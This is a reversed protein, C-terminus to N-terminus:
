KQFAVGQGLEQFASLASAFSVHPAKVFSLKSVRTVKAGQLSSHCSHPVPGPDPGGQVWWADGLWGVKGLNATSLPCIQAGRFDLNLSHNLNKPPHLPSRQEPHLSQLKWAQGGTSKESRHGKILCSSPCAKRLVQNTNNFATLVAPKSPWALPLSVAQLDGHWSRPASQSITVHM